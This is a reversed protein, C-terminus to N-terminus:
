NLLNDLKKKLVNKEQVGTMTDVPKGSNFIMLTPISMIQFRSPTQPNEEVNLKGIKIDKDEYEKALEDIIAGQIKCPGCWSAWFDVLVPTKTELVEEKFNKDTLITAAM